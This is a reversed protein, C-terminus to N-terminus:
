GQVERQASARLTAELVILGHAVRDADSDQAVKIGVEARVVGGVVRQLVGGALEVHLDFGLPQRRRREGGGGGFLRQLTEVAQPGRGAAGVLTEVAHEFADLERAAAIPGEEAGTASELISEEFEGAVNEVDFVGVAGLIIGARLVDDNIGHRAGDGVALAIGRLERARNRFNAQARARVQLREVSFVLLSRGFLEEAVEFDIGFIFPGGHFGAEGYNGAAGFALDAGDFRGRM